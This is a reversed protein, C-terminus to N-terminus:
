ILNPELFKVFDLQTKTPYEKLFKKTKLERLLEKLKPKYNESEELFHTFDKKFQTETETKFYTKLRENAYLEQQKDKDEHIHFLLDAVSRSRKIEKFDFWLVSHHTKMDKQAPILVRRRLDAYLTYKNELGLEIKFKDVPVTFDSIGRNLKDKLFKYMEISHKHTLYKAEIINYHRYIELARSFLPLVTEKVEIKFVNESIACSPFCVELSKFITTEGNKLKYPIEMKIKKSTIRDCIRDISKYPTNTREMLDNMSIEIPYVGKGKWDDEKLKNIENAVNMMVKKEVKSSHAFVRLILKHERTNYKILQM